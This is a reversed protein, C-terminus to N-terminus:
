EVGRYLLGRTFEVKPKEENNYANIIEEVEAKSEVTFNFFLIDCPPIERMRDAMYVPRSNLIESFGMRCRVPFKIEMRDTIHSQRKCESCTKGNKVPCNRTLMLPLRGYVTIGKPIPSSIKSFNDLTCESSIIAEGIGMERAKDMSLSNLINMSPSAVAKKGYKKALAVADLTHCLVTEAPCQALLKEVKKSNGFMGHPLEVGLNDKNKCLKYEEIPVFCVCDKINEPIQEANDFRFYKKRLNKSKVDTPLPSSLIKRERAEAMDKELLELATRRMANLASIPLSYDIEGQIEVGEAEFQTGGCKSLADTIRDPSLPRNIPAECLMDSKVTVSKESCVATLSAKEGIKGSFKFLVKYRPQEKEYVAEYKKLLEKTASQVNEKERFGFMNRGLANNYYGDTFGSRSFLDELDKQIAPSYEGEAAAKCATVAASVYEPRKMRGEIKFSCVGAEALKPIYEILSLDKLSLDHGTGSQVKFPLRCPQACLGRNGSRSGLVASMLCQGSVCMCLAGHVFIELDIPSKECLEKIEDFSLERPLVARTFGLEKLEYLGGLTGTSLQTSAHMEIEPCISNVLKAVGLDQVIVADAGLLCIKKVARAANELESDKILTNLTIHVKVGRKHCYEIANKLQEDTFNQANRRANFDGLGLYVADAGSLVAAKLMEESGVPALIEINNRQTTM